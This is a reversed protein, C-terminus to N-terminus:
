DMDAVQHDHSALRIDRAHRDPQALWLVRNRSRVDGSRDLCDAFIDRFESEAILNEAPARAGKGLVRTSSLILEEQLWGVERELLGRGDSHGCGCSELQKAILPLDLWTMLDQDVSRRSAEPREGNLDGFCEAGFYGAHAARLVDVHDAGNASVVDDVVGLLVEGLTPLTVVKDEVVHRVM